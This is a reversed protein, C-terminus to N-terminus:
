CIFCQAPHPLPLHTQRRPGSHGLDHGIGGPIKNTVKRIDVGEGRQAGREGRRFSRKLGARRWRLM